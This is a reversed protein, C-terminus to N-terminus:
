WDVPVDAMEIPKYDRGHGTPPTPPATYDADEWWNPEAVLEVTVVPNEDRVCPLCDNTEPRAADSLAFLPGTHVVDALREWLHPGSRREVRIAGREVLANMHKAACTKSMGACKALTRVGLFFRRRGFLKSLAVLTQRVREAHSAGPDVRGSCWRIMYADADEPKTDRWLDAFANRVRDWGPSDADAPLLSHWQTVVALYAIPDATRDIARLSKVLKGLSELWRVGRKPISRAVAERIDDDPLKALVNWVAANYTRRASPQRSVPRNAEKVGVFPSAKRLRNKAHFRHLIFRMAPLTGFVRGAPWGDPASVHFVFGRDPLSEDRM